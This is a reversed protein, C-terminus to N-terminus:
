LRFTQGHDGSYTARSLSLDATPIARSLCQVAWGRDTTSPWAHKGTPRFRMSSPVLLCHVGNTIRSVDNCCSVPCILGSSASCQGSEKQLRTPPRARVSHISPGIEVVVPRCGRRTANTCCRLEFKLWPRASKSIERRKCRKRERKRGGRPLFMTNTCTDSARSAIRCDLTGRHLILVQLRCFDM